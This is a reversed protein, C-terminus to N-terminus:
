KTVRAVTAVRVGATTKKGEMATTMAVAPTTTTAVTTRTTEEMTVGMKGTVMITAAVKVLIIWVMRTEMDAPIQRMVVVPTTRTTAMKMTAGVMTVMNEKAKTSEARKIMAGMDQTTQVMRMVKDALIPTMEVVPTTTTIARATMAEVTSMMEVTTIMIAMTGVMALITQDTTMAMVAPIQITEAEPTTTTIVKVRTDGVMIVKMEMRVMTTEMALTTTMSEKVRAGGAKTELIRHIRMRRHAPLLTQALDGARIGRIPAQNGPCAVTTSHISDWKSATTVM